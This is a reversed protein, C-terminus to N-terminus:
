ISETEDYILEIKKWVKGTYDTCTIHKVKANLGRALSDLTIETIHRKTEENMANRTTLALLTVESHKM